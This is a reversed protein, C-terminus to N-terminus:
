RVLQETSGRASRAGAGELLRDAKQSGSPIGVVKDVIFRPRDKVEMYIKALYEGIVGICLLQVGGLFYIPVVTSAWGPVARDTFLRLLVAWLVLGLSGACVLLGLGTIM